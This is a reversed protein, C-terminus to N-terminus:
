NIEYRSLDFTVDEYWHNKGGTELVEINKVTGVFQKIKEEDPKDQKINIIVHKSSFDINEGILEESVDVRIKLQYKNITPFELFKISRDFFTTTGIKVNAKLNEM